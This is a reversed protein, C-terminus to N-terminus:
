NFENSPFKSTVVCYYRSQSLSLNYDSFNLPKVKLRQVYLVTNEQEKAWMKINCVDFIFYIAGTGQLQAAKSCNVM